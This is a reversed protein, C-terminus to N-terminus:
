SISYLEMYNNRSSTSKCQCHRGEHHESESLHRSSFFTGSGIMFASLTRRKIKKCHILGLMMTRAHKNRIEEEGSM